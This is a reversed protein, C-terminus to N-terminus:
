SPEELNSQTTHHKLEKHVRKLSKMFLRMAQRHYRFRNVTGVLYTDSAPNYFLFSGISGIHGFSAYRKPFLLPIPHLYMIGHGYQIGLLKLSRHPSWDMMRKTTTESLLERKVFAQLFRLLDRSSSVIGGGAFDDELMAYHNVVEDDWYLRAIHAPDLHTNDPHAMHTDSMGLPEFVMTRMVEHLPRKTVREILLGLLHYGTDSYHFGEGPLFRPPIHQKTWEIWEEPRHHRHPDQKVLELAALGREPRDDFYDGIGSRHQLLQEVTILSSRDIGDMVHLGTCLAPGLLEMITDEFRLRGDDVLRGIVVGTFLKGISATFYAQDPFTDKGQHLDVHLGLRENHVLLFAQDIRNDRGAIRAFLNRIDQELSQKM